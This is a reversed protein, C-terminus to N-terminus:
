RTLRLLPPVAIHLAEIVATSSANPITANESSLVFAVIIEGAPKSGVKVIGAISVAADAEGGFGSM